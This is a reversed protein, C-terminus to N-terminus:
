WFFSGFVLKIFRATDRWPNIKSVELSYITSVPVSGFRAGKGAAKILIESETEFHETVLEVRDLISTTIMRFGSQSDRIRRGARLSIVLSTTMNTMKRIFPMKGTDSMRDGIIIDEGTREFREVFLLIESPDHQGDADLTLVAEVGRIKGAREFGSRLALGKGRNRGHEIVTVGAAKAVALTDDTSGDDVVIINQPVMLDKLRRIVESLHSGENYAPIVACYKDLPM